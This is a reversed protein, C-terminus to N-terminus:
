LCPKSTSSVVVQECVDPILLEVVMICAAIICQPQLEQTGALPQMHLMHM